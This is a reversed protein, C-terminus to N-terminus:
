YPNLLCASAPHRHRGHSTSWTAPTGPHGHAPGRHWRRIWGPEGYAPVTHGARGAGPQPLERRGGPVSLCLRTQGELLAVETQDCCFLRCTFSAAQPVRGTLGGVRLLSPRFTVSCARAVRCSWEVGLHVWLVPLGHGCSIQGRTDVRAPRVVALLLFRGWHGGVSSPVCVSLDTWM